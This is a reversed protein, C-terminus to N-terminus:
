FSYSIVSGKDLQASFLIKQNSLHTVTAKASNQTVELMLEVKVEDGACRKACGGRRHLKGFHIEDDTESVTCGILQRFRLQRVIGNADAM